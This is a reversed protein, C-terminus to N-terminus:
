KLVNPLHVEWVKAIERAEKLIDLCREQSCFRGVDGDSLVEAIRSIRKRAEAKSAVQKKVKIM